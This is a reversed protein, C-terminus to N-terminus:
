TDLPLEVAFVAGVPENDYARIFGGHESVITHAIALGLGTGSKRTSFYPEFIRLKVEDPIGPGNDAVELRVQDAKESLGLSVAVAGGDGLVSVANDLLNILVRKIQVADFLFEPLDPAIRCTITLQKHAEQYLVVMEQVLKSLNKREKHLKPMRAFDSFESVLKKIEDVQNVITATCQDFIDRDETILHLYRKRLRQASLQIPTLPNKIEHAIRRAVEQWAALRQAKELHTLNDFVIVFGIPQQWDDIMRTVNVQLSLTEGRRITVRLHREITAKGTRLLENLFSEVILAHQKPLAAHFDKGLFAAPRIALLEEAFRNITTIRNNEDLAIVGAAVNELITELYRRRQESVETSDQLARHTRALQQNSALIESTMSNFSDILMGMEDDAEKEVIFDMDGDAVRKTAEALKNIPGTLSRAIYFGFWIAGFIILLTIILLMIILSFKIPAKLMIMQQYGTIGDSISQMTELRSSPILLTTILFWTQRTELNVQVPTIAQILEGITTRRTVVETRDTDATLRLAESPMAPPAITELRPGRAAAIPAREGNLLLISDPAGPLDIKLTQTFFREVNAADRLDLAGSELISALQRGAYEAQESADHLISQALKLSSQLSEEVRANFWYDMSTSVFRLAVVFLIATPVLSLSVFCIVLRTRLKSGLLKQKREFILEVLNRLVLYLMLLLLLGNVNILAFILITSPIPLNFDGSLLGRQVYGLVPILLLCCVIVIRVLRQKKKRQEATLM